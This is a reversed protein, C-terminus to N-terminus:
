LACIAIQGVVELGEELVKAAPREIVVVFAIKGFIEGVKCAAKSALKGVFISLVPGVSQVALLVVAVEIAHPSAIAITIASL